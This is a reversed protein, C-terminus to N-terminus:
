ELKFSRESQCLCHVFDLDALMRKEREPGQHDTEITVHAGEPVVQLCESIQIEGDALPCHDDVYRNSLNSLHFHTPKKKLFGRILNGPDLGQQWASLHAHAFDLCFLGKVQDPNYFATRDGLGTLYPMNEILVDEDKWDWIPLIPDVGADAIVWDGHTHLHMLNLTKWVYEDYYGAREDHPAHLSYIPLDQWQFIQFFPTAPLIYLEVYDLRGERIWGQLYPILHTDTAACATGILLQKM